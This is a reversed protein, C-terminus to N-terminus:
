ELITILQLMIEKMGIMKDIPEWKREDSALDRRGQNDTDYPLDYYQEEPLYVFSATFHEHANGFKYVTSKM